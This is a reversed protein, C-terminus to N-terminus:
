EGDGRRDRAAERHRENWDLFEAFQREEVRTPRRLFASCERCHGIFEGAAADIHHETGCNECAIRPVRHPGLRRRRTSPTEIM